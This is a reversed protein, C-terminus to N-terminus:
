SCKECYLGNKLDQITKCSSYSELWHPTCHRMQGSSRPLWLCVFFFKTRKCRRTDSGGEQLARCNSSNQEILCHLWWRVISLQGCQMTTHQGAWGMIICCPPDKIWRTKRSAWARHAACRRSRNVATVVLYLPVFIITTSSRQTCGQYFTIADHWNFVMATMWLWRSEVTFELRDCHDCPWDCFVLVM